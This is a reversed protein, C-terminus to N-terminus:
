PLPQTISEIKSPPSFYAFSLNFTWQFVTTLNSLIFECGIITVPTKVVLLKEFYSVKVQINTEKFLYWVKVDM